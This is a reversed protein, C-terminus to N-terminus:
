GAEGTPPTMELGCTQAAAMLTGLKALDPEGGTFLTFLDELSGLQEEMCQMVSPPPLEAGSNAAFRAAEEDTMCLQMQIATGFLAAPDEPPEGIGLVSPDEMALATICGRTEASLGGAEVSMFAITMAITSEPTFCESPLEVGPPVSSMPLNQILAFTDAGIADQVCAVEDDSLAAMLEGVTTSGTIVLDEM